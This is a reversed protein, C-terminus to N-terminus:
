RVTTHSLTRRRLKPEKSRAHPEVSRRLRGGGEAGVRQSRRDYLVKGRDVAHRVFPDYQRYRERFEGPRYLLLDIAFPPDSKSLIKLTQPLPRGRYPMIVILDVDSDRHPRGYARSGFLIVKHPKFHRVIREAVDLM